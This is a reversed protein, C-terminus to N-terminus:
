RARWHDLGGEGHPARQPTRMLRRFSRLQRQQVTPTATSPRSARSRCPDYMNETREPECMWNQYWSEKEALERAEEDDEDVEPPLLIFRPLAVERAEHEQYGLGMLREIEDQALNAAANTEAELLGEAQLEKVKDPLHAKWHRRALSTLELVSM